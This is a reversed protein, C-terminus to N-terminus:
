KLFVLDFPKCVNESLALEYVENEVLVATRTRIPLAIMEELTQAIRM